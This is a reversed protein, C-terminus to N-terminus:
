ISDPLNAAPAPFPRAEPYAALYLDEPSKVRAHWAMAAEHYDRRLGHFQTCLHTPGAQSLSDPLSRGFALPMGKLVEGVAKNGFATRIRHLLETDASVRVRDWCGLTEFVRRHFLLSSTNRYIWGEEMRWRHFILETTCRVLDTSCAVWKPNAQMGAVQQALKQPHSWDDSDHVTIYTGRAEALGRNRASYAGQNSSQRFVRIRSDHAAFELAVQVSADQSADDVVLIELAAHTQNIVSNLATPLTAEANFVPMIVSVLALAEGQDGAGPSEAAVALNDMSLPCTSDALTVTELGVQQWPRNIWELRLRHWLQIAQKDPGSTYSAQAALLNAMALASDHYDPYAQQLAQLRDYADVLAGSRMLAEVELLHPAPGRPQRDTVHRAKKLCEAALAWQQKWVYWRALAWAAYSAEWPAEDSAWEHLAALCEQPNEGGWLAQEHQQAQIPRPLRGEREGWRIFHLLPSVGARAVDVYRQLYWATSFEPGPDRLLAEGITMYHELPDMGSATVDPYHEVYWQSNFYPSQELRQTDSLSM